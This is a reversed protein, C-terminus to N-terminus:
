LEVHRHFFDRFEDKRHSVYLITCIDLRAIDELFDLLATRNSEDLGQTPEDLILLRPSKILARAILVLRQAAYELERFSVGAFAEMNLRQLWKDALKKQEPTCTNYLGISDFLGSLICALTSGPIHYSRHLDASVIGMQKKIDWISEGSGRRFEFVKLDNQYCAPHDGTIVQLLTSKGCGNPGSILTHEGDRITLSLNEFVPIGGYGASGNKLQVLTGSTDPHTKRKKENTMDSAKAQFDAPRKLIEKEILPIVDKTPGLCSIRGGSVAAAFTCWSPIDGTNHVFLIVQIQKKHLHHLALDLELCSKSDLGDFPALLVLSDVGRTIQSLILLKRSQGTSLQRYGKELHADMKFARILESHDEINKLFAKAPTGPDVRDLFDTDEKKLESEYIEQQKKFSIIGPNGPLELVDASIPTEQGSILLFIPIIGSRNGGAICLSQGTDLSLNDIMFADSGANIIKM